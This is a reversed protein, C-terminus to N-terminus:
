GLPEAHSELFPTEHFLNCTQYNLRHDATRRCHKDTLEGHAIVGHRSRLVDDDFAYYGDQDDDEDQEQEELYQPERFDNQYDQPYKHIQRRYNGDGDDELFRMTPELPGYDVMESELLEYPGLSAPLHLISSSSSSVAAASTTSSSSSSSLPHSFAVAYQWGADADSATESWLKQKALFNNSNDRLYGTPAMTATTTTTMSERTLMTHIVLAMWLVLLLGCGMFAVNEVSGCIREVAAAATTVRQRRRSPSVQKTRRKRKSPSSSPSQQQPRKVFMTTTTSTATTPPSSSPTCCDDSKKNHDSHRRHNLPYLQQQQLRQSIMTTTATNTNTSSEDEQEQEEEIAAKTKKAHRRTVVGRGHHHHHHDTTSSNSM